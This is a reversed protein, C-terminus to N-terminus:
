VISGIVESTQQPNTLTKYLRTFFFASSWGVPCHNRAEISVVPSAEALFIGAM